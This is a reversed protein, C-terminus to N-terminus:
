ERVFRWICDPCWSTSWYAERKRCKTCMFKFLKGQKETQRDRAVAVGRGDSSSLHKRPKGLARSDTPIARERDGMSQRNNAIGGRGSQGDQLVCTRRPAIQNTLERLQSPAVTKGSDPVLSSSQGSYTYHLRAERLEFFQDLKGQQCTQDPLPPIFFLVRLTVPLTRTPAFSFAIPPKVGVAERRRDRLSYERQGGNLHSGPSLYRSFAKDRQTFDFGLERNPNQVLGIIKDLTVQGWLTIAGETPQSFSLM